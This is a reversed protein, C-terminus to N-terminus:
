GHLKKQLEIIRSSVEADLDTIPHASLELFLDLSRQYSQQSEIDRHQAALVDGEAELLGALSYLKGVDVGYVTTIINNLSNDDLQKVIGADLGFAEEITQNIIKYSEQYKGAKKLGAIKALVAVLQAIQRLLYDETLM